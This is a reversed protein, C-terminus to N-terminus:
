IRPLYSHVLSTVDHEARVECLHAHPSLEAQLSARAQNIIEGAREKIAATENMSGNTFSTKDDDWSLVPSKISEEESSSTAIDWNGQGRAQCIIARVRARIAESDESDDSTSSGYKGLDQTSQCASSEMSASRAVKMVNFREALSESDKSWDPELNSEEENAGWEEEYSATPPDMPAEDRFMEEDVDVAYEEVVDEREDDVTTEAGSSTENKRQVWKKIAPCVKCESKGNLTM